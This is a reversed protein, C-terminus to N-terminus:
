EFVELVHSEATEVWYAMEQCKPGGKALVALLTENASRGVDIANLAEQGLKTGM